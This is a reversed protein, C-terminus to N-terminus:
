DVSPHASVLTLVISSKGPHEISTMGYAGLFMVKDGTGVTYVDTNVGSDGGPQCRFDNELIQQGKTPMYGRTHERIYQWPQGVTEGNVQLKDFTYHARVAVALVLISAATKM